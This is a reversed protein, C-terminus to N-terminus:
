QLLIISFSVWTLSLLVLILNLGIPYDVKEVVNKKVLQLINKQEWSDARETSTRLVGVVLPVLVFPLQKIRNLITRKRIFGRAFRATVIKESRFTVDTWVTFAGLATILSEGKLGWKRFTIILHETPILLVIQIISTILIIKLVKLHIFNWDESKLILVYLLIFSLYIPLMAFFLLNLHKKIQFSFAFLPIITSCYFYFLYKTNNILLVGTLGGLLFLLRVYPHLYLKNNGM